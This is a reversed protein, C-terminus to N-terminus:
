PAESDFLSLQGRQRRGGKRMSKPRRLGGARLLARGTLRDTETIGYKALRELTPLDVLDVLQRQEASSVELMNLRNLGRDLMQAMSRASILAQSRHEVPRADQEICGFAEVVRFAGDISLGDLWRPMGLACAAAYPPDGLRQTIWTSWRIAGAPVEASESSPAFPWQCHHCVDLAQRNWRIVARCRQCRDLLLSNHLPCACVCALEWPLLCCGGAHVCKACLQPCAGRVLLRGHVRHGALVFFRDGAETHRQVTRQQLWDSDIGATWAVTRLRSGALYISRGIGLHELLVDMGIRNAALTRLLLSM